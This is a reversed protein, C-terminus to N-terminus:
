CAYGHFLGLVIRHATGLRGRREDYLHSGTMVDPAIASPPVCDHVAGAGDDDGEGREVADDLVGIPGLSRRVAPPGEPVPRLGDGAVLELEARGQLAADHDEATCGPLQEGPIQGPRM